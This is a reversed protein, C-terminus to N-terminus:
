THFRTTYASNGPGCCPHKEVCCTQMYRNCWLIGHPSEGLHLRLSYSTDVFVHSCRPLPWDGNCYCNSCLVILQLYILVLRHGLWPVTAATTVEDQSLEGWCSASTWACRPDNSASQSAFGLELLEQEVFVCFNQFASGAWCFFQM